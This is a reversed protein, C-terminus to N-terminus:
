LRLRTYKGGNEAEVFPMLFFWIGLLLRLLILGAPSIDFHSIFLCESVIKDLNALELGFQYTGFGTPTLSPDKNSQPHCLARLFYSRVVDICYKTMGEACQIKGIDHPSLLGKLATLDMSHRLEAKLVLPISALYGFVRRHDEDHWSEEPFYNKIYASIVHLSSGLPGAWNKGAKM